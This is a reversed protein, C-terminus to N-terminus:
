RVPLIGVSSSQTFMTFIWGMWLLTQPMHQREHLAPHKTRLRISKVAERSCDSRGKLNRVEKPYGSWDWISFLGEILESQVQQGVVETGLELVSGATSGILLGGVAGYVKM